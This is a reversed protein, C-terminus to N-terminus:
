TTIEALEAVSESDRLVVYDTDFKVITIRCPRLTEKFKLKLDRIQRNLEELVEPIERVCVVLPM